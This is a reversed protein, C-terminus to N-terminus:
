NKVAPEVVIFEFSEEGYKNWARQLRRSHHSSSKLAKKHRTWRFPINKSSGVYYHQNIRNVIKYIGCCANPVSPKETTTTTDNQVSATKNESNM